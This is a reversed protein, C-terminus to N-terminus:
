PSPVLYVALMVGDIKQMMNQASSANAGCHSLPLSSIDSTPPRFRGNGPISTGCGVGNSHRHRLQSLSLVEVSHLVHEHHPVPLGVYM